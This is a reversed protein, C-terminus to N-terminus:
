SRSQGGRLGVLLVFGTAWDGLGSSAHIHGAAGLDSLTSVSTM